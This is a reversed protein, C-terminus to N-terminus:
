LGDSAHPPNLRVGRIRSRHLYPCAPVGCTFTLGTYSADPRVSVNFTDWCMGAVGPWACLFGTGMGRATPRSAESPESIGSCRFTCMWEEAMLVKLLDPQKQQKLNEAGLNTAHLAQLV